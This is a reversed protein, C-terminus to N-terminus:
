EIWKGDRYTSIKRKHALYKIIPDVVKWMAEVEDFRAFLTQDGHMCDLLLRNYAPLTQVKFSTAYDFSMLVPQPINLGGPQKVCFQIAISEEPQIQFILKNPNIADCDRSLLKLSPVKFQVEIQTIKKALKKGAKVCFPVNAWRSNKLYFTGAFYTPTLSDKAVNKERVYSTYQAIEIDSNKVSQISRFVKVREDRILDSTWNVPPGMAVMAVLQLLHNQVIDRIVGAEEYFKGRSGIGVDEAVTIQVRDIYDRNWIPEFITNAYRFFLINQVTEKGLYHDIRYVQSEDFEKLIKQNLKRASKQDVGFPKELVIKNCKKERCLHQKSLGTVIPVVLSPQVALYYIVSKTKNKKCHKTILGCLAGYTELQNADYPQYFLHKVFRVVDNKKYEKAAHKKLSKAILNRYEQASRESRGIAIISFNKILKAKFLQYLAPLLKKQSLDGAGGFILMVFSAPSEPEIKCPTLFKSQIFNTEKMSMINPKLM